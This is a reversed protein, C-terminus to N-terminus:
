KNEQQKYCTAAIRQLLRPIKLNRGINNLVVVIILGVFRRIFLLLTSSPTTVGPIVTELHIKFYISYFLTADIEVPHETASM